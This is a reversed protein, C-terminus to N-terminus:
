EEDEKTKDYDYYFKHNKNCWACMRLITHEKSSDIRSNSCQKSLFIYKM